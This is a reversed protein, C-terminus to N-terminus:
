RRYYPCYTGGGDQICASANFVQQPAIILVQAPRQRQQPLTSMTHAPPNHIIQPPQIIQTTNVGNLNSRAQSPLPEGLKILM